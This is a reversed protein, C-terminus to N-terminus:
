ELNREFLYMTQLKPRSIRFFDTVGYGLRFYHVSAARVKDQWDKATPLDSQKLTNIDPHIEFLLQEEQLGLNPDTSRDGDKFNIHAIRDLDRMIVASAGTEVRQRVRDSRLHWEAVFRDTPLGRHLPSSTYGYINEEYHRVIAGLKHINFNANLSQLPDYTWRIEDIGAGLAEARQRTKLLLGIDKGRYDPVVATMHSWWYIRGGADLAVMAFSFGIFRGASNQAVLVNGGHMNGLLLMPQAVVDEPQTYGWVEKQLDVCAQYDALSSARRIVVDVPHTM